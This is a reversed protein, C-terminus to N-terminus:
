NIQGRVCVCIFSVKKVGSAKLARACATLTSGTTTVDDLLLVSTPIGKKRVAKDTIFADQVNMKRQRQDLSKQDKTKKRKKLLLRVPIDTEEALAKALLESQNFGRSRKKSSHLPVPVICEAGTAAIYGKCSAKMAKAFFRVYEETGKNKVQKLARGAYKQYYFVSRGQDFGRDIGCCEVCYEEEESVPVGCKMCVSGKIYELKKRCERHILAGKPLVTKECVPCRVPYLWNIMIDKGVM